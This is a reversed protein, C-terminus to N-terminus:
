STEKWDIFPFSVRIRPMILLSGSTWNMPPKVPPLPPPPVGAFIPRMNMERLGKPLRFVFEVSNIALSRLFSAPTGPAGVYRWGTWSMRTPPLDALAMYWYVSRSRCDVPDRQTPGGAHQGAQPGQGAEDVYAAVLLVLAELGVERDVPIGGGPEANGGFHDVICKVIGEPLALHGDPVRLEVLVVDDHFNCRLIPLPRFPEIVNVHAVRCASGHHGQAREGMELPVCRGEGHGM